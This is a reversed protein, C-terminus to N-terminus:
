RMSTNGWILVPKVTEGSNMDAIAKGFDYAPYTKVLRDIPFEGDRYWKIMEPIFTWPVADGELGAVIKKGTSLFSFYEFSLEAGPPPVGVLVMTGLRSLVEISDQMLSIVGTTDMAVTPGSGETIRLVETKYDSELTNILHTAGLSKALELRSPVRDVAIITKCNLRKAAMLGSLGVGGLGTIVVEDEATVGGLNTISGAGTQFGCGLPALISFDEDKTILHSINIASSELVNSWSAFSSQGFYYGGISEKDGAESTSTFGPPCELNLSNFVKCATPHGSTCFRCEKCNAVTLAVCDGEHASTVNRGVKRVWGIGEHGLIKPYKARPGEPASALFIDTHCIGTAIMEVLLENDGPDPVEVDKIKYVMEGDVPAYHVIAKALM